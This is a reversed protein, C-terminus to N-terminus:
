GELHSAPGGDGLTASTTRSIEATEGAIGAEQEERILKDLVKRARVAAADGSLLVPRLSMLDADGVSLQQAEVIPKDQMEFAYTTGQIVEADLAEDDRSFDRSQTWFYHTKQETEPTFFHCSPASRGESHPRGTLTAGVDLEMLAPANWRTNLWRDVPRGRADFARDLFPPLLENNTLRNSYVTTGEQVVETKARHIAESGFFGPHVFEIHGLDLINDTELLYNAAISTYGRLIKWGQPDLSDFHPISAPTSKEEDGMWIWLMGHREVLPYRKVRAQKPIVGNGHPNAVCRGAGDFKLGHYACEIIGANLKGMHLPAFRHPCRDSLAVAEASAGRFLLVQENLIKRHFLAGTKVEEAHAAAYWTNRLFHM